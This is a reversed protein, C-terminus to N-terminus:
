GLGLLALTLMAVAGIMCCKASRTLCYVTVDMSVKDLFPACNALAMNIDNHTHTDVVSHRM